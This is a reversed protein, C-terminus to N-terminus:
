INELKGVLTEAKGGDMDCRETEKDREGQRESKQSLVKKVM